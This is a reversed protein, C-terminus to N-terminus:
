AEGGALEGPGDPIPVAAFVNYEPGFQRLFCVSYSRVFVFVPLLIVTNIYPIMLLIVLCCAACMALALMFVAVGIALALALRMLLYLVFRGTYGEILAWLERWADRVGCGRIYMIPVVFDKTLVMVTVFVMAFIFGIVSILVLAAIMGLRGTGQGATIVVLWSLGGFLLAAAIFILGVVMRFGFLRNGAQRFRSWPEHIHAKNHAVCDLFMFQGRSSLWTFALWLGLILIGAIIGGIVFWPLHNMIYQKISELQAQYEPNSNGGGGRYGTNFQFRGQGLTALFAAFGMVMWKELNFPRFLVEKVWEFAEAIPDVIRIEERPVNIM